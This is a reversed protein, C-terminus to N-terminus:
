DQGVRAIGVLSWVPRASLGGFVSGNVNPEASHFVSTDHLCANIEPPGLRSSAQLIVLEALISLQPHYSRYM